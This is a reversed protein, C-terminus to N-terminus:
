DEYIVDGHKNVLGMVEIHPQESTYICHLPYTFRNGEKTEVILQDEVKETKRIGQELVYNPIDVHYGLESTVVVDLILDTRDGTVHSMMDEVEIENNM